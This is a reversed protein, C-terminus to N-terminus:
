YSLCMLHRIDLKIGLLIMVAMSSYDVLTTDGCEQASASNVDGSTNWLESM